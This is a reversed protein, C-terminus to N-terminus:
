IGLRDLIDLLKGTSRNIYLEHDELRRGILTSSALTKVADSGGEAKGSPAMAPNLRDTLDSIVSELRSLAADVLGLRSGIEANVSSPAQEGVLPACTTGAEAVGSHPISTFALSM